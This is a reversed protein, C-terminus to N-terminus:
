PRCSCTHAWLDLHLWMLTKDTCLHTHLSAHEGQPSIPQFDVMFIEIFSDHSHLGLLFGLEAVIGLDRPKGTDTCHQPSASMRM